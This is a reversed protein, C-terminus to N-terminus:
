LWTTKKEKEGCVGDGKGMATTEFGDKEKTKKQVAYKKKGSGRGAAQSGGRKLNGGLLIAVGV